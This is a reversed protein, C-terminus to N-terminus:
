IENRAARPLVFRWIPAPFPLLSIYCLIYLIVRAGPRGAAAAAAAGKECIAQYHERFSQRKKGAGSYGQKRRRSGSNQASCGADLQIFASQISNEGGNYHSFLSILRRRLSEGRTLINLGMFPHTFIDM